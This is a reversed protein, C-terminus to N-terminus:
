LEQALQQFNHHTEAYAKVQIKKTVTYTIFGDADAKPNTPAKVKVIKPSSLNQKEAEYFFTKKQSSQTKERLIFKVKTLNSFKSHYPGNKDEILEFLRKAAKKSAKSPLDSKYVGGTFGIESAQITFTRKNSM